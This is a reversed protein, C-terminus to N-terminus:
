TQSQLYRLTSQNAAIKFVTIIFLTNGPTVLEHWGGHTDKEHHLATVIAQAEALVEPNHVDGDAYFRALVQTAQYQNLLPRPYVYRPLESSQIVEEARGKSFLWRPSEDALPLLCLSIISPVAEGQM